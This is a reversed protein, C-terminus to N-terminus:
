RRATTAGSEVLLDLTRALFSAMQNRRVPADPSFTGAGTGAALGQEAVRNINDEHTHGRDDTFWDGKAAGGAGAVLDHARVLFTAMAARSVAADPAYRRDGTGQVVGVAALQDIRLRHVSAEDDLFANPPATPLRHGAEEITRAVFAAMQARSVTGGPGFTTATLGKAVGWWAVCDVPRGHVDSVPVDAFLGRRVTETPCADDISRATDGPSFDPAGVRTRAAAAARLAAGARALAHIHHV